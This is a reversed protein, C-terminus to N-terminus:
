PPLVLPVLLGVFFREQPSNSSHVWSPLALTFVSDARWRTDNSLHRYKGCHDDHRGIEEGPMWVM